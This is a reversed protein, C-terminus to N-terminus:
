DRMVDGPQMLRARSEWQELAVRFMRIQGRLERNERQSQRTEDALSELTASQAWARHSAIATAADRDGPFARGPFMEAWLAPARAAQAAVQERLDRIEEVALDWVPSTGYLSDLENETLRETM